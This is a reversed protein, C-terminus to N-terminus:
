VAPFCCKIIENTIDDEGYSKKCKMQRLVKTVESANTKYVFMTKELRDIDSKVQIEALESSLKSGINAFYENIM